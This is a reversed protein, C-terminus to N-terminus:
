PPPNGPPRGGPPPGGNPPSGRREPPRNNGPGRPPPGDRPPEMLTQAGLIDIGAELEGRVLADDNNTDARRIIHRPFEQPDLRGNLDLDYEDFIQASTMGPRPPRINFEFNNAPTVENTTEDSATEAPLNNEVNVEPLNTSQGWLLYLLLMIIVALVGIVLIWRQERVKSVIEIEHRTQDLVAEFEHVTIDSHSEILVGSGSGGVVNVGRMQLWGEIAQVFQDMSQYRNKTEKALAKLCIAEMDPSLDPRVQTPPTLKGHVIEGMIALIDGSYLRKGTLLEWMIVGLSFIDTAPTMEQDNVAQEPSMYSPTGLAHGDLTLMSDENVQYFSALGFDLVVPEGRRDIMINGPKLDRHLIGQHHAEAVAAAISRVIQAVEKEEFRETEEIVQVLSIGEIYAMSIYLSNDVIGVDHIPCINPHSLSAAAKAERLFRKQIVTDNADPKILPVKLVVKRGLVTDTALMVTAMAGSGLSREFRYRGFTDNPKFSGEEGLLFEHNDFVPYTQDNAM